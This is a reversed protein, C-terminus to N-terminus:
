PFVEEAWFVPGDKCTKRRSGDAADISCSLCAGLGCAMRKELSVQCPIGRAEAIKAAKQMMIDPGCVMLADYDAGDLIEPLLDVAFGKQGLSGDDTAIHIHSVWPRFLGEWFLEGATKGGMLVDAKKGMERACFLLPSLGMGGGVLLHRRFDMSFGRGLPGLLSVEAGPPLDSFIRTGKGVVRYFFTLTGREGNADAIGLPRRLLLDRGSLGLHIFQGPRALGAIGPSNVMMRYIEGTMKEQELIRGPLVAKPLTM